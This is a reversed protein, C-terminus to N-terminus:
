AIEINRAPKQIAAEVKPLTLTLVGNESKASIENQNVKNSLKFRKSFKQAAFGTRLENEEVEKTSITLSGNDLEIVIDDKTLGPIAIQLSFENSHESVNYDINTNPTNNEVKELYSDSFNRFFAEHALDRVLSPRNMRVLTM